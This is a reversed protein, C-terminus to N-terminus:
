MSSRFLQTNHFAHSTWHNLVSHLWVAPVAAVLRRQGDAPDDDQQVLHVHDDDDDHEFLFLSGPAPESRERLDRRRRKEVVGLRPRRAEGEFRGSGRETRSQLDM